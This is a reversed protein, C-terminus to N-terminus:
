LPCKEERVTPNMWSGAGRFPGRIEPRKTEHGVFSSIASRPTRIASQVLDVIRLGFDLISNHGGCQEAFLDAGGAHVVFLARDDGDGDHLRARARHRLHLRDLGVAVVGDLEAEAVDLGLEAGERQDAVGGPRADPRLLVEALDLQLIGGVALRAVHHVDAREVPHQEDVDDSRALALARGPTM